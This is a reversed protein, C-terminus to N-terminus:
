NLDNTADDTTWDEIQLGPIRGFDRVNRTLLVLGRSMAIAAIRLDSTSVRTRLSKLRLYENSASNNFPLVQSDGFTALVDNMLRFARIVDAANKANQLHSHCGLMQEHFSVISVFFDTQQHRKMRRLLREFEDSAPRQVFTFHDTDLLFM